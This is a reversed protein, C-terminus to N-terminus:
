SFGPRIGYEALRALVESRAARVLDGGTFRAEDTVEAVGNKEIM